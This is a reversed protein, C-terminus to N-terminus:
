LQVTISYITSMYFEM